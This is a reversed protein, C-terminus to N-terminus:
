RQRDTYGQREMGEKIERGLQDFAAGWFGIGDESPESGEQIHLTGHGDLTYICPQGECDVFNIVRATERPGGWWDEFEHLGFQKASIDFGAPIGQAVEHLPFETSVEVFSVAVEITLFYPLTLEIM